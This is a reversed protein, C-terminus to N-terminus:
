DDIRRGYYGKLKVKHKYMAKDAQAFISYISEIENKTYFAYGYALVIKIKHKENIKKLLKELKFLASDVLEISTEQCIVCFEDGGIRFAKGIDIFSEQVIKATQLITEDGAKHGYIDNIRKLDNIDIVVIAANREGKLYKDMEKEFASRNKIGTQVDYKFQLERLFIYYLLLSISMSGWILLLDKFLIQLIAGLMPLFLVLILVKKEDIEYNANNKIVAIIIPVFYFVSVIMPLLFLNGRSYQNQADILFIWGTKYSLICMLANVFLPITLFINHINRKKNNFFLFIFPIVPSLSFGMINAILHPIVLKNNSSLEMLITTIELILLIITIVSASIYIRNKYNNVVPNKKALYITFCLAVIALVDTSISATM